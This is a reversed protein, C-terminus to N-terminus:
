FLTEQEAPQEVAVESELLDALLEREAPTGRYKWQWETEPPCPAPDHGVNERYRDELSPKAGHTTVPVGGGGRRECRKTGM